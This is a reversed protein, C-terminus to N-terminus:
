RGPQYPKYGPYASSQQEPQEGGGGGIGGGGVSELTNTRSPRSFGSQFDFGGNNQPGPSQPPRDMDATFQRRPPPRGVVGGALPRGPGAAPGSFQRQPAPPHPHPHHQQPGSDASFQRYPPGGGRPPMPGGVGRPPMPGRGGGPGPASDASYQRQPGPAFGQQPPAPSFNRQPPPAPSFARQPPAPSFNRQPGPAFGQQPPAPSFTRPPAPSFSRDPGPPFPAQVPSPSYALPPQDLQGGGYAAEHQQQQQQPAPSGRSRDPMAGGGGGGGVAGLAGRPPGRREPHPPEAGMGYPQNMGSPVPAGGAGGYESYAGQEFYGPAQTPPPSYDDYGSPSPGPMQGYDQGGTVGWTQETHFAPPQPYGNSMQNYGQGQQQMGYPNAMPGAGPPGGPGRPGPGMYGGPPGQNGQPGYPSRAGPGNPGPSPAPSMGNMLPQGQGNAEPKKLQQLEVEEEELVVKKSEADGWTPMAPLSDEGGGKKMDFSAFQAYQPPDAAKTPAPRSPPMAGASMAPESRYGQNPPIYPEDLYKQRSGRPPDCCGCCEGCCAIVPWKCYTAAMCNDWSSFATKFDTFDSQADEVAGRAVLAPQVARAISGWVGGRLSRAMMVDITPM